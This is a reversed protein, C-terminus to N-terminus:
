QLFLKSTVVAMILERFRFGSDRFKAFATDLIPQDAASEERGLAYRFFQKVICRQCTESEALLKGLEKPRSFESNPIGQVFAATDVDLEKASPKDRSGFRLTMKTHFGGIADYQEFGYGIPDILRHCSSCAESNLHVALRQRNTQPSDETIEPLM